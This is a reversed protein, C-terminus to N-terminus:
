KSDIIDQIIQLLKRTYNELSYPAITEAIEKQHQFFYKRDKYLEDVARLFDKEDGAKFLFGNKGNKVLEGVGGIDAALVPVGAQLSEYIVTPSNEYCLSPVVLVDVTRFVELLQDTTVFGLYRMDPSPLTIKEVYKKLRGEGAVVLQAPHEIKKFAKLLFRVGKHEALQGVFLLRIIDEKRESRGALKFEPAPNPMVMTKSGKFFSSSSYMDKLYKSPFIVLDPNGFFARCLFRYIAYFPRVSFPVREKGAFLLGSPYILQLDHVVHIHPIEMRQITQPIQLGIGKLNHTIVVDPKESRLIKNLKWASHTSFADIVHWVLRMLWPYKYDNLVHYINLPFHRYVRETANFNLDGKITENPGTTVVFVDHGQATLAEVTRVIVYEAGGRAYPPYLNTVIGIKM